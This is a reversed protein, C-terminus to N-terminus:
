EIIKKVEVMLGTKSSSAAAGEGIALNLKSPNFSNPIVSYPAYNLPLVCDQYSQPRLNSGKQAWVGYFASQQEKFIKRVDMIQIIIVFHSKDRIKKFTKEEAQNLKKTVPIQVTKFNVSVEDNGQQFFQVPSDSKFDGETIKEVRKESVVGNEPM